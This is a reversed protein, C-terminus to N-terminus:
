VPRAVKARQSLMARGLNELRERHTLPGPGYEAEIRDLLAAGEASDAVYGRRTCLHHAPPRGLLSVIRRLQDTTERGPILPHGTFLEGLVCGLSWVDVQSDYKVGLLVEPSRYFRSQAYFSNKEDDFCANGLDILYVRPNDSHDVMINEPKLDCHILNERALAALATMVQQGVRRIVALGLGRWGSYRLLDYLSCALLPLVMCQHMRHVFDDRLAVIGHEEGNCRTLYRLMKVERRSADSKGPRNKVVKICVQDGHVRDWAQWAEGFVGAGLRSQLVFRGNSICEGERGQYVGAKDDFATRLVALREIHGELVCIQFLLTTGPGLDRHFSAEPRLVETDGLSQDILREVRLAIGHGGFRMSWRLLDTRLRALVFDPPSGPDSLQERRSGLTELISRLAKREILHDHIRADDPLLSVAQNSSSGVVTLNGKSHYLAATSLEPCCPAM